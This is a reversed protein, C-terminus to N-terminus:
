PNLELWCSSFHAPSALIVIISFNSKEAFNNFNEREINTMALFKQQCKIFNFLKVQHSGESHTELTKHGNENFVQKEYDRNKRKIKM